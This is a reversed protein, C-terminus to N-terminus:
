EPLPPPGPKKVLGADIQRMLLALVGRVTGGGEGGGMVLTNPMFPVNSKSLAEVANVLATANAGLAAVQREYARCTGTRDISGARGPGRRDAPHVHGRGASGDKPGRDPQRPYGRRGKTIVLFTAPHIPALTGPSLVPRQVGQQGGKEIFLKLDTFNGFESKYM